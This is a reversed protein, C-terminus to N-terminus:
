SSHEYFGKLYILIIADRKSKMVERFYLPNETKMIKGITHTATLFLGKCNLRIARLALSSNQHDGLDTERIM